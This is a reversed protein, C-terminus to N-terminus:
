FNRQNETVFCLNARSVVEFQVNLDALRAPHFSLGTALGKLKTM